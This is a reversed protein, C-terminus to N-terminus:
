TVYDSGSDVNSGTSILKLREYYNSGTIIRIKGNVMYKGSNGDSSGGQVQDPLTVQVVDYLKVGTFENTVLTLYNSYTARLRANQHYAKTFKDNTNGCDIPSYERKVLPIDQKISKDINLSSEMKTAAVPNHVVATGDMHEVIKQHGYGSLNNSMGGKNVVEYNLIRFTPGTSSKPEIICFTAVPQTKVQETLNVYILTDSPYDLAVASHMCSKDNVWGHERVFHSFNGYAKGASLWAQSDQPASTLSKYQLNCEKAINGIVTSSDGKFSKTFQGKLFKPATLLGMIKYEYGSPTEKHEKVTFTNFKMERLNGASEAKGLTASFPTGDGITVKDKSKGAVDLFSLEFMPLLVGVDDIIHCYRLNGLQLVLSKDGDGIKLEALIKGAISIM